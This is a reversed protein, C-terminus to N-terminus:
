GPSMQDFGDYFTVGTLKGDKRELDNKEWAMQIKNIGSPTVRESRWFITSQVSYILQSYKQQLGDTHYGGQQLIWTAQSEQRKESKGWCFPPPPSFSNEGNQDEMSDKLCLIYIKTFDILVTRQNSFFFPWQHNFPSPFLLQLLVATNRVIRGKKNEIVPINSKHTQLTQSEYKIKVVDVSCLSTPIVGRM